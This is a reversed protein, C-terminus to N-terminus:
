PPDHQGQGLAESAPPLQARARREYGSKAAISAGGSLVGTGLIAGVSADGTLLAAAGGVLGLGLALVPVGLELMFRAYGVLWAPVKPYPDAM